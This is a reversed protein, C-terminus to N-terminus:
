IFYFINNRMANPQKNKCKLLTKLFNFNKKNKEKSCILKKKQTKLDKQHASTLLLKKKFFYKNQHMKSSFVSWFVIAVVSGFVIIQYCNSKLTNKARLHMFIIIKKNKLIIKSILMDFHDSFV